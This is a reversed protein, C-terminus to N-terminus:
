ISTNLEREQTSAALTAQVSEFELNLIGTVLISIVFNLVCERM